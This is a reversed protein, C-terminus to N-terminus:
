LIFLIQSVKMSTQIMLTVCILRLRNPNMKMKMAPALTILMPDKKSNTNIQHHKKKVLQRFQVMETPQHAKTVEM